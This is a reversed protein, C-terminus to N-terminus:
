ARSPRLEAGDRSDVTSSPFTQTLRFNLRSVKVILFNQVEAANAM